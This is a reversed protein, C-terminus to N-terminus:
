HDCAGGGSQVKQQLYSLKRRLELAVQNCLQWLDSLVAAQVTPAVYDTVFFSKTDYSVQAIPMATYHPPPEQGLQLSLNPMLRPIDIPQDGTNIDVIRTNMHSAYRPLDGSLDAANERLYPVCLYIFHPTEQLQERFPLLDLQLTSAMESILLGDPMIAELELLRFTGATLLAPDIKIQCLGWFFPSMKSAYYTLLSEMRIDAQQFHQPMLLMGEYWQIPNINPQAM